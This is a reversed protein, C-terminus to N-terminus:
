SNIFNVIRTNWPFFKNCLTIFTLIYPHSWKNIFPFLIRYGFLFCLQFTTIRGLPRLYSATLLLHSIWYTINLRIIIIRRWSFLLRCLEFTPSSWSWRTVTTQLLVCGHSCRYIRDTSPRDALALRRIKGTSRANGRQSFNSLKTKKQCTNFNITQALFFFACDIKCREEDKGCCVFALHCFFGNEQTCNRRANSATSSRLISNQAPMMCTGSNM